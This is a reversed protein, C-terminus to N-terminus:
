SALYKCGQIDEWGVEFSMHASFRRTFSIVVISTDTLFWVAVCIGEAPLLTLYILTPLGM